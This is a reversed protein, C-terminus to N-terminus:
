FVPSRKSLIREICDIVVAVKVPKVLFPYGGITRGQPEKGDEAGAATLFVIPIHKLGEEERILAAVEGGNMVPMLLDVLILDPKFQAAVSLAQAAQNVERVQYAGLQELNLRLFYTFDSEDDIILIRKDRM